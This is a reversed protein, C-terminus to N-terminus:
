AAHRKASFKSSGGCSPANPYVTKLTGSVTGHRRFQGTLTFREGVKGKLPGTKIVFKGTTKFKGTQRRPTRRVQLQVKRYIGPFKKRFFAALAM